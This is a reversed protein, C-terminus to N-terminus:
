LVGKAFIERYLSISPAYVGPRPPFDPNANGGYVEWNEANDM